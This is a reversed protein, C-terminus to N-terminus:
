DVCGVCDVCDAGEEMTTKMRWHLLQNEWTVTNTPITLDHLNHLNHPNPRSERQFGSPPSRAAGWCWTGTMCRLPRGRLPPASLSHSGCWSRAPVPALAHSRRSM